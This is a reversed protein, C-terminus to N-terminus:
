ILCLCYAGATQSEGIFSKTCLEPPTNICIKIFDAWKLARQNGMGLFCSCSSFGLSQQVGSVGEQDASRSVCILGQFLWSSM